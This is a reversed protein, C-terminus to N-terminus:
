GMVGSSRSGLAAASLADPGVVNHGGCSVVRCGVRACPTGHNPDSLWRGYVLATRGNNTVSPDRAGLRGLLQQWENRPRKMSSGGGGMAAAALDVKQAHKIQAKRRETHLEGWGARMLAPLSKHLAGLARRGRTERGGSRDAEDEIGDSLTLPLCPASVGV